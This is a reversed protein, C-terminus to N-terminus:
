SAPMVTRFGVHVTPLNVEQPYRASARYRVCFDASCLFSGGKILGQFATVAATSAPGTGHAQVSEGGWADITWEWVNGILDYIGFGNAAYCGVGARGRHGDEGSDIDPFIGQWFNASPHGQADRPGRELRESQGNGKAAYEWQAETPLARGLWRAYALADARTVQM